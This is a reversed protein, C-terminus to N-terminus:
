DEELWRHAGVGWLQGCGGLVISTLQLFALTQRFWVSLTGRAHEWSVVDRQAAGSLIQMFQM